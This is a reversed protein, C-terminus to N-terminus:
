HDSSLEIVVKVNVCVSFNKLVTIDLINRVRHTPTHTPDKPGLIVTDNSRDILCSLILDNWNPTRCGRGTHKANFDGLIQKQSYKVLFYIALLLFTFVM